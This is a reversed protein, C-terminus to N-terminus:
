QLAVGLGHPQGHPLRRPVRQRSGVRLIGRITPPGHPVTPGGMSVILRNDSCRFGIWTTIPKKLGQARASRKGMEDIAQGFSQGSGSPDKTLREGDAATLIHIGPSFASRAVNTAEM